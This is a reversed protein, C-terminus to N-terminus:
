YMKRRNHAFDQGFRNSSEFDRCIIISLSLVFRYCQLCLIVREMLEHVIGNWTQTEPDYVGYMNDPVLRIAYQFGIQGAIGKLLDICFGEFRANGALLPDDRVMVYPKEERTMVILTINAANSEYFATPDTVNVGTTPTWDGM